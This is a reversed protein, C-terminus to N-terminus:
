DYNPGASKEATLKLSHHGRNLPLIITETKWNSWSGTGKFDFTAEKLGDLILNVERANGAAYRATIEYNGTFPADVMWLLHAGFDQFDAYGSGRYGAHTTLISVKNSFAKEGEYYFTEGNRLDDADKAQYNVVAGQVKCILHSFLSFIGLVVIMNAAPAKMKYSVLSLSGFVCPSGGFFLLCDTTEDM